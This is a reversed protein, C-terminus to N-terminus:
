FGSCSIYKTIFISPVMNNFFSIKKKATSPYSSLAENKNPLREGVQAM